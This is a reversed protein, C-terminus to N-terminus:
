CPYADAINLLPNLDPGSLGSRALYAAIRDAVNRKLNGYYLGYDMGHLSAPGFLADVGQLSPLGFLAMNRIYYDSATTCVVVGREEDIQADAFGDVLTHGDSGDSILCGANMDAGAYEPGRSWNLPNICIAGDMVMANYSGSNEPGETNWSVIVGTDTAGEAFRLHPNAELYDETISFGIVYAAVMRGYYEPHGEMYEDLVLRIM